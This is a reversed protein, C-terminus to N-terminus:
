YDDDHFVEPNGDYRAGYVWVEGAFVGWSPTIAEANNACAAFFPCGACLAQAEEPTPVNAATWDTYERHRGFCKTREEAQAKDFSAMAETLAKDKHRVPQPPLVVQPEERKREAKLALCLRCRRRKGGKSNSEWHTTATTWRHGKSCTDWISGDDDFELGGAIAKKRHQVCLGNFTADKTCEEVECTM